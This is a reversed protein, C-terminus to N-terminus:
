DVVVLKKIVRKEETRVLLYYMGVKKGEADFYLVHEGKELFQERSLREVLQGTVDHVSISVASAAKLSLVISTKGKFPNPVVAVEIHSNGDELSSKEDNFRPEITEIENLLLTQNQSLTDEIKNDDVVLNDTSMCGIIGAYFEAGLEVSFGPELLIEQGAGFVITTGTKVEGTSSIGNSYWYNSAPIADDDVSVDIGVCECDINEDFVCTNDIETIAVNVRVADTSTKQGDSISLLFVNESFNDAFDITFSPNVASPDDLQINDPALWTYTLNDGNPDTSQSADLSYTGAQTITMDAGAHAIPAENTDLITWNINIFDNGKIGSSHKEFFHLDLEIKYQGPTTGLNNLGDLLYTTENIKTFTWGTPAIVNNNLSFILAETPLSTVDLINTSFHVEISTPQETLQQNLNFNWSGSLASEDIYLAKEAQVPNDMLDLM